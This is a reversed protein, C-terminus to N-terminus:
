RFTGGGNNDESRGIDAQADMWVYPSQESYSRSNGRAVGTGGPIDEHLPLEFLGTESNAAQELEALATDHQARYEQAQEDLSNVGRKLYCRHSVIHALWEQLVTPYPTAFPAAYRKALRADMRRSVAELQAALWGPSQAEAADVVNVPLLTLARFETTTLYAM